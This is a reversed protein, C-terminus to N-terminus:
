ENTSIGRKYDDCISEEPDAIECYNNTNICFYWCGLDEFEDSEMSNEECYVCSSCNTKKSKTKRMTGRMVDEYDQADDEPPEPPDPVRGFRGYSFPRFASM